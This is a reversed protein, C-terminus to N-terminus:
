FSAPLNYNWSIARDVLEERYLNVAHRFRRQCFIILKNLYLLKDYFEKNFNMQLVFQYMFSALLKKSRRQQAKFTSHGGFTLLSVM